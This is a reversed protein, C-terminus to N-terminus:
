KTRKPAAKSKTKAKKSSTKSTMKTEPAPDRTRQCNKNNNMQNLFEIRQSNVAARYKPNTNYEHITLKPNHSGERLSLGGLLFLAKPNYKIVSGLKENSLGKIQSLQYGTTLMLVKEIEPRFEAGSLRWRFNWQLPGFDAYRLSCNPYAAVLQKDKQGAQNLDRWLDKAELPKVLKAKLGGCNPNVHVGQAPKSFNSERKWVALFLAAFNKFNKDWKYNFFPAFEQWVFGIPIQTCKKLANNTSKYKGKSETDFYSQADQSPEFQSFPNSLLVAILDDNIDVADNDWNQSQEKIESHNVIPKPFMPVPTPTAKPTQSPTPSKLVDTKALPTPKSNPSQPIKLQPNIEENGTQPDPTPFPTQLPTSQGIPQDQLPDIPNAEPAPSQCGLAAIWFLAMIKSPLFLYFRRLENCSFHHNSTM